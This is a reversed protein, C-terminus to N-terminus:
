LTLVVKGFNKDAQMFHHAEASEELKFTKAIIPKLLGKEFLPLVQKVFVNTVQIKEELPRRRMTTGKIELRSSLIKGLNVTAKSGAVLGVVILRGQPAMCALDEEVYPGGTLELVLDVGKGDTLQLVQEAFKADKVVIGDDLGLRKAEELKEETRSTGISRAGLAKVIQVAATGVGSGVASILVNDGSVLHMQSVLADYATLFVEPIAAAQEFSLANPIPALTRGHVVVYDAYSGGGCLGFVRDSLKWDGAGDGIADVVGAFELGPIDQPCDAPAPYHGLRQMVDARNVSTAKVRVRVEGRGPQPADVQKIQLVEPAGFESIVVARM